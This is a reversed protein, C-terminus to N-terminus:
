MISSEASTLGLAQLRTLLDVLRRSTEPLVEEENYFPVAIALRVNM